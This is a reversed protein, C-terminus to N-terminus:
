AAGRGQLASGPTGFMEALRMQARCESTGAYEAHWQAEEATLAKNDALKAALRSWREFRREASDIEVVPAAVKEELGNPGLKYQAFWAREEPSLGTGADLRARLRLWHGLNATGMDVVPAATMAERAAELAPTDHTETPKPLYTLKGADIAKTALIENVLDDTNVRKATARLAAREAKLQAKQKARAHAAVERRDMGTRAPNEAITLFQGEHDFVYLRGLDTPDLRVHVRQGIYLGLDASIFWANDHRLGKKQVTAGGAGGGAHEALLVDLVREDAIMKPKFGVADAYAEAPTKGNLGNHPEREYINSVWQDCFRQFEEASLAYCPGDSDEKFMRKAFPKREDIAKREAVNHGIFGSLMEMPGHLFTQLFREIHPKQDPSFPTCLQHEIGLEDVVRVVHKSVYDSGNDTKIAEPVGWDSLARRLLAAVAVAKSSKSVLLRARRTAVDIVGLVNYRGDTLLVDAPTSDMEWRQNPREIGESRNGFAAMTSSRWADPNTVSQYVSKNKAKWGAMFRSLTREHVTGAGFRASIARLANAATTHPYLGMHSVVFDHLAPNSEIVGSGRRNGYNTVVGALGKAKVEREWRLVTQHGIDPYLARAESGADAHSENYARCFLVAAEAKSIRPMEASFTRFATLIALRADMWNGRWGQLMTFRGRQADNAAKRLDAKLLDKRAALQGASVAEKSRIAVLAAQTETPLSSLLYERGGGLGARDRSTWSSRSAMKRLGQMTSPM